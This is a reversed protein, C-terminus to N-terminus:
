RDKGYIKVRGSELARMFAIYAKEDGGFETKLEESSYFKERLQEDTMSAINASAVNRVKALEAELRKNEEMLIEFESKGENSENETTKDTTGMQVQGNEEARVFAIYSACGEDGSGFETQLNMDAEFEKKLQEDTKKM